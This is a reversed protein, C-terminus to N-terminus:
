RIFVWEKESSLEENYVYGDEEFTKIVEPNRIRERIIFRTMAGRAKKAYVTITKYQNERKEKFIPTIINGEILDPKIAKFYERSALNVLTPNKQNRLKSNIIKSIKNGWFEYLNKGKGTNLPTGMELRYPQILDLPRLIGYLGSLIRLHQQAFELDKEDMSEASLRKYVHGNFTFISQQANASPTKSSWRMFREYNIEAINRNVGMLKEIEQPTLRRLEEVLEKAEDLFEPTTYQNTIAQTTEELKKAPSIITIM